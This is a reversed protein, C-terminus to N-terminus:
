RVETREWYLVSATSVTTIGYYAGTYMKTGTNDESLSSCKDLELGHYPTISNDAGVYVKEDGYNYIIVSMRQSNAPIIETATTSISTSGYSM